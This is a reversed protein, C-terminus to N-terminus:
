LALDGLASQLAQGLEHGGGREGLLNTASVRVDTLRIECHSDPPLTFDIAMVTLSFGHRGTGGQLYKERERHTAGEDRGNAAQGPPLDGGEAAGGASV